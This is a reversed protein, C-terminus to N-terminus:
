NWASIRNRKGGSRRSEAIALGSSLTLGFTGFRGNFKRNDHCDNALVSISDGFAIRSFFLTSFSATLGSLDGDMWLAAADRPESFESKSDYWQMLVWSEM